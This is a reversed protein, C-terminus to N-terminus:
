FKAGLARWRSNIKMLQITEVGGLVVDVGGAFVFRNGVASGAGNNKLTITTSTTNHLILIRGAGGGGEPAVGTINVPVSATLVWVVAPNGADAAWDNVDAALTAPAIASLLRVYGTFSPSALPAKLALDSVLNTVDSQPHTHASPPFTEPRNPITTWDTTPTLTNATDDYAWAVGPGPQIMAAVADQAQEDSYGAAGTASAVFTLAVDDNNGPAVGSAQELTVNLQFWTGNDVPASDLIYRCWSASNAADQCRILDGPLQTRIVDSRDIGNVSVGHIALQTADAFNGSNTKFRGSAPATATDTNVQNYDWIGESTAAPLPLWGKAGAQNTGYFYNNGPAAVDDVLKLGLSDAVISMQAPIHIPPVEGAGDLPAYGNAIGKSAKDEKLDLAAQTADGIPKDADATNDVNGLGVQPATVAHPNDARLRAYSPFGERGRL